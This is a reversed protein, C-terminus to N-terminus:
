MELNAGTRITALLEKHVDHEIFTDAVKSSEVCMSGIYNLVHLKLKVMGAVAAAKGDSVGGGAGGAAVPVNTNAKILEICKALEDRGMQLMTEAKHLKPNKFPLVKVEYKLSAVKQIKM